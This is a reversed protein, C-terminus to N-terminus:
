PWPPTLTMPTMRITSTTSTRVPRSQRCPGFASFWETIFCFFPSGSNLPWVGGFLAYPAMILAFLGALTLMVRAFVPHPLLYTQGDEEM